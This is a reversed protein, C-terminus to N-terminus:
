LPPCISASRPPALFDIPYGTPPLRHQPSVTRPSHCFSGEGRSSNNQRQLFSPDAIAPSCVFRTKRHERGGGSSAKTIPATSNESDALELARGSVVVFSPFSPVRQTATRKGLRRIQLDAETSSGEVDPPEPACISVLSCIPFSPVQRPAARTRLRGSRPPPGGVIRLGILWIELGGWGGRGVSRRGGRESGGAALLLGPFWDCIVDIRNQVHAATRKSRSGWPHAKVHNGNNEFHMGLIWKESAGLSKGSPSGQPM